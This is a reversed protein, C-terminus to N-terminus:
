KKLIEAANKAITAELERAQGSDGLRAYLRAFYFCGCAALISTAAIALAQIAPDQFDEMLNNLLLGMSGVNVQIARAQVKSNRPTAVDDSLEEAPASKWYVLAALGLGLLLVVIGAIKLRAATKTSSDPDPM